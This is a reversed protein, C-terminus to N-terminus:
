RFKQYFSEHGQFYKEKKFKTLNKELLGYIYKPLNQNKKLPTTEFINDLSINLKPKSSPVSEPSYDQM